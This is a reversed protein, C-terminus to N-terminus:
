APPAEDPKKKFVMNKAQDAKEKAYRLMRQAWIYETGLISLAVITLLISWPGPVPIIIVAVILLLFGAITVGIRRGSRQIFRWVVRFPALASHQTWHQQIEEDGAFEEVVKSADVEEPDDGWEARRESLSRWRDRPEDEPEQDALESMGLM